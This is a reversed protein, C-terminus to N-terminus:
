GLLLVKWAWEMGTAVLLVTSVLSNCRFFTRNVEGGRGLQRHYHFFLAAVVLLGLYFPTHVGTLHAVNLLLAVTLLHLTRAVLLSRGVGLAAPISHLGEQRDFDRDQLAYVIDMGAISTMVAGALCFAAWGVSGVVTAWAMIVAFGHICGLILHCMATFRKTYSYAWILFLAFPSLGLCMPSIMACLLIFAASNLSALVKVQAASVEGSPLARNLTRPNAADIDKDIVRNFCMGATRAAIFATIGVIFRLFPPADVMGTALPLLAATLIWPLGFLSQEILTLQSFTKWKMHPM